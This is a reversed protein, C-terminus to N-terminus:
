SSYEKLAYRTAEQGAIMGFVFADTLGNGGLRFEGHIGGTTEGAAFLGPIIGNKGQVQAQPTIAIGGCCYHLHFQERGVYYPPQDIRQTFQTRGFQPDFGQQAAINYDQLSKQLVRPHVHMILALEEIDRATRIIKQQLKNAFTPGKISQQDTIVWFSSSKSATLDELIHNWTRTENTFREGKENLFIEAGPYDLSRGGWYPIAMVADMDCLKAGIQEAMLIGDGTAPDLATNHVNYTTGMSSPISPIWRKRLALNGTFGGTALIISRTLLTKDGNPTSVRIGRIRHKEDLLLSEAKHQFFIPINAKRTAQALHQIYIFGSRQSSAHRARPYLGNYAEFPEPDFPVGLNKLYSFASFSEQIMTQILIPNGKRNGALFTDQFYRQPSDGHPNQPDFVNLSGSSVLTHGGVISRKEIIAVNKAGTKQAFLAAMFGAAGAGIVLVDWTTEKHQAWSLLPLSSLGLFELVTRRQM